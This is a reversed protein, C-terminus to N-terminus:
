QERLLFIGIERGEQWEQYRQWGPYFALGREWLQARQRGKTLEAVVKRSQGNVRLEALPQALLNGYWSPHQAKGFNSAIVVFGEDVPFGLLRVMRPRRSRSGTTTLEVVTLGSLLSTLTHQGSTLRSVLPDLHPLV